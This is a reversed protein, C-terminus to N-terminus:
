RKVCLCLQHVLVYGIVPELTDLLELLGFYAHNREIVVCRVRASVM